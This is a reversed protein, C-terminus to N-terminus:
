INIVGKTIKKSKLTSKLIDLITQKQQSSLTDQYLGYPQPPSLPPLHTPPTHLPIITKTTIITETTIVKQANIILMLSILIKALNQM